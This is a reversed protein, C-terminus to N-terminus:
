KSLKFSIPMIMRVKVAQGRQKGPEWKSLKIVREAEKDCGAGIGKVTKVDYVQGQKDVIFQVFVRGEIGLRSAQEPYNLENGLLEYFNEMGGVPRPQEEVVEFVDTDLDKASPAEITQPFDESGSEASQYKVKLSEGSIKIFSEVVESEFDASKLDLERAIQSAKRFTEADKFGSLVYTAKSARLVIRQDDELVVMTPQSGENGPTRTVEFNSEVAMHEAASLSQQPETTLKETEDECAVVVFVTAALSLGFLARLLPKSPKTQIMRIRNLTNHQFFPSILPINAQRLTQKVMLQLYTQPAGQQLAYRDALHEHVQRVSHRYFYLFPNFWLLATLLELLLIDYTHGQKVHAVEHRLLQQEEEKTLSTTNDWFIYNLFSSTPFRGGTPALLYSYDGAYRFPLRKVLRLLSGIRWVSLLLSLFLGAFYLYGALTHWSFAQAAEQSEGGKSAYVVLEPLYNWARTAPQWLTFGTAGGSLQLPIHLLPIIFAALLGLLLFLRNFSPTAKDRLVFFYGSYLVALMLSAELLYSFFNNMM